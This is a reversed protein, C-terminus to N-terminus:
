GDASHADLGTGLNKGITERAARYVLQAIIIRAKEIDTVAQADIFTQVPTCMDPNDVYVKVLRAATEDNQAWEQDFRALLAPPVASENAM